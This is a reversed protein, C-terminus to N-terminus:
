SLQRIAGGTPLPPTWTKEAEARIESISLKQETHPVVLLDESAILKLTASIAGGGGGGSPSSDRVPVKPAVNLETHPQQIAADRRPLVVEAALAAAVVIAPIKKDTASPLV